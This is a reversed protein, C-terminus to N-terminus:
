FTLIKYIFLLPKNQSVYVALLHLKHSTRRIELLYIRRYLCCDNPMLPNINTTYSERQNSKNEM